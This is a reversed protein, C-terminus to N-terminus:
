AVVWGWDRAHVEATAPHVGAYRAAQGTAIVCGRRHARVESEVSPPRGGGDDLFGLFVAQQRLLRIGGSGGSRPPWFRSPGTVAGPGKGRLRALQAMAHNPLEDFQTERRRGVARHSAAPVNANV